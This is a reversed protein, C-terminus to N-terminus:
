GFVLGSQVAQVLVIAAFIGFCLLSVTALKKLFLPLFDALGEAGCSPLLAGVALAPVVGGLLSLYLPYGLYRYEAQFVCFPCHHTPAGYFYLCQYSIFAAVSLVFTAAGSVSFLSGAARSGTALFWAGLIFTLTMGAAFLDQMAPRPLSSLLAPLGSGAESFLSGCCSTIVNPKLGLFYRLQLAAEVIVLPAIGLLLLYKTRILPYAPSRNDVHNVILWVGAVLFNLVKALLTAYGWPNLALSGAACMAGVFLKAIDDAVYIFLLLSGLQFLLAWFLATTILYTKRELALQLESGSAIDWARLIQMAYRAAHLLVLTVLASGVLLAIVPPHLIM